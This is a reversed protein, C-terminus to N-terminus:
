AAHLARARRGPPGRLAGALLDLDDVAQQIRAAVEPKATIHTVAQAEEDSGSLRTLHTFREVLAWPVDIGIDGLVQGELDLDKWSGVTAMTGEGKM